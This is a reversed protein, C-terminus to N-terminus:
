TMRPRVLAENASKRRKLEALYRETERRTVNEIILGQRADHLTGPFPVGKADAISAIVQNCEENSLHQYMFALLLEVPADGAPAPEPRHVVYRPCGCFCPQGIHATQAHGCDACGSMQRNLAFSM